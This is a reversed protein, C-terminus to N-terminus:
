FNLPDERFIALNSSANMQSSLFFSLLSFFIVQFSAEKVEADSSPQAQKEMWSLLM